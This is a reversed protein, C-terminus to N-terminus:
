LPIRILMNAYARSLILGAEVETYWVMRIHRGLGSCSACRNVARGQHPLPRSAREDRKLRSSEMRSTRESSMSKLWAGGFHFGDLLPVVYNSGQSLVRLIVYNEVRLVRQSADAVIIRLMIYRTMYQDRTLSFTSCYRYRRKHIIRLPVEAYKNVVDYKHAELDRSPACRACYIHHILSSVYFDAHSIDSQLSSYVKGYLSTCPRHNFGLVTAYMM